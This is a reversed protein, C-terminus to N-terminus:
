PFHPRRRPPLLTTQHAERGLPAFTGVMACASAAVIIKAQLIDWYENVGTLTLISTVMVALYVLAQTPYLIKRYLPFYM